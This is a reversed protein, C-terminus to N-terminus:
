GMGRGVADWAGCVCVAGMSSLLDDGWGMTSVCRFPSGLLLLTRSHGEHHQDVACVDCLVAILTLRACLHMKQTLDASYSFQAM